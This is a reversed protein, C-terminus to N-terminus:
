KKGALGSLAQDFDSKKLTEGDQIQQGDVYDMLRLLLRVLHRPSSDAERVLMGGITERMSSDWLSEFKDKMKRNLLQKLQCDDWTLDGPNRIGGLYGTVDVEAALPAFIKVVVNQKSLSIALGAMEKIKNVVDEHPSSNPIDWLFCIQDFGAPYALYLFSLMEDKTMKTPTKSPKFKRIYEIVQEIDTTSSRNVSSSYLNFRLTELNRAHWLMLRGMATKRSDPSAIFKRPNDATFNILARAITGMIWDKLEMGSEYPAYVPFVDAKTSTTYQEMLWLASVTKGVGEGGFVIMTDPNKIKGFVPLEMVSQKSRDELEAYESGLSFDADVPESFCAFLWRLVKDSLKRERGSGTERWYIDQTLVEFIATASGDDPFNRRHEEIIDHINANRLLQGSEESAFKNFIIPLNERRAAFDHLMDTVLPKLENWRKIVTLLCQAEEEKLPYNKRDDKCVLECFPALSRSHYLNDAQTNPHFVDWVAQLVEAARKADFYHNRSKLRELIIQQLKDEWGFAEVLPKRISFDSEEVGDDKLKSFGDLADVPNKDLDGRFQNERKDRDDRSRDQQRTIFQMLLTGAGSLLSAVFLILANRENAPDNLIAQAATWLITEVGIEIALTDKMQPSTIEVHKRVLLGLGHVSRSNILSIKIEEPETDSGSGSSDLELTTAYEQAKPARVTLGAPIDITFRAKEGDSSGALILIMEVPKNDGLILNPYVVRLTQGNSLNKPKTEISYNKFPIYFTALSWLILAVTAFLAVFFFMYLFGKELWAPPKWPASYRRLSKGRSTKANPTGMDDNKPM